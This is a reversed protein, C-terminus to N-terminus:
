FLFVFQINDRLWMHQMNQHKNINVFDSFFSRASAVYRAKGIDVDTDKLMLQLRDPDLFGEGEPEPAKEM